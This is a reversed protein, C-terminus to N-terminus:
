SVLPVKSAEAVNVSSSPATLLPPQLAVTVTAASSPALGVWAIDGDGRGGVPGVPRIVM